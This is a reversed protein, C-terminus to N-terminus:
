IFLAAFFFFFNKLFFTSASFCVKIHDYIANNLSDM